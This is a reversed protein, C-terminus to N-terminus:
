EEDHSRCRWPSIDFSDCESELDVEISLAGIWLDVLSEIPDIAM